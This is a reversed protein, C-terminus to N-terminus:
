KVRGLEIEQPSNGFTIGEGIPDNQPLKIYEDGPSQRVFFLKDTRLQPRSNYIFMEGDRDRAVWVKM